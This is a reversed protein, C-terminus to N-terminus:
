SEEADQRLKEAARRKEEKIKLKKAEKKAKKEWTADGRGGDNELKRKSKLGEEVEVFEVGGGNGEQGLVAVRPAVERVEISQQRAYEEPDQWGEEEDGGQNVGDMGNAIAVRNVGDVKETLDLVPALWEGRLGAEVRQLNHLTISNAAATPGTPELKANPLLWPSSKTAELYNQLHKLATATSVPLSAGIQHPPFASSM